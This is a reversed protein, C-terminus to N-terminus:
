TKEFEERVINQLESNIIKKSSLKHDQCFRFDGLMQIKKKKLWDSIEHKAYNRKFLEEIFDKGVGGVYKLKLFTAFEATQM